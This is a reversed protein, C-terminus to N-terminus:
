GPIDLRLSQVSEKTSEVAQLSNMLVKYSKHRNKLGDQLTSCSRYCKMVNDVRSFPQSWM